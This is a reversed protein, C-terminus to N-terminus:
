RAVGLADCLFRLMPRGAMAREILRDPLDASLVDARDLTTTAIFDKRRLDDALPHDKDFGRPIRKLADGALDLGGAGLAAAAARWDEPREVIAERIARVAPSAPRWTGLGLFCADPEIHLYLGPAHADKGAAHRFQIGVHTKYPSKDKSFRVDRYIRFMSGGVTRPDARLSPSLPELREGMALIFRISPDKLDSEYRTKNANFWDRDNNEALDALFAFTADSFYPADSM